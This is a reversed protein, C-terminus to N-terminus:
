IREKPHTYLNVKMKKLGSLFKAKRKSHLRFLDLKLFTLFNKKGYIELRQEYEKSEIGLIRLCEIYFKKDEKKTGGILIHSIRDEKTLGVGGEAAVLGRLYPVAFKKSKILKRIYKLFAIIFRWFLFSSIRIQLIGYQSHKSEYQPLLTTKGFNHLPIGVFESWFKKLEKDRKHTFEKSLNKVNVTLSARWMEKPIRFYEEFVDVVKKIIGPESNTIKVSIGGSKVRKKHLEGDLIGAVEIVENTIEIEKPLIWFRLQGESSVYWIGIEDPLLTVRLYKGDFIMKRGSIDGCRWKSILKIWIYGDEEKWEFTRRNSGRGGKCWRKSNRHKRRRQFEEVTEMKGWIAVRLIRKRKGHIVLVTSYDETKIELPIGRQEYWVRLPLSNEEISVGNILKAIKKTKVRM